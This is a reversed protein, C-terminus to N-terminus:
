EVVLVKETEAQCNLLLFRLIYNGPVHPASWQFYVLTTDGEPNLNVSDSGLVELASSPHEVELMAEDTLSKSSHNNSVEVRLVLAKGQRVSRPAQISTSIWAEDLPAAATTDVTPTPQWVTRGNRPFQILQAQGFPAQAPSPSFQPSPPPPITPQAMSMYYVRPDYRHTPRRFRTLLCLCIRM